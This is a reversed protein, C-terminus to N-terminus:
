EQAEAMLRSPAPLRHRPPVAHRRFPHRAGRRLCAAPGAQRQRGAGDRVARPRGSSARRKRWSPAPTSCWRTTATRPCGPSPTARARTRPYGHAAMVVGLAPRRDWELEVQDLKGATAALLVDVLDSKLADHHAPNRPRGHPLQIGADQTARADIMLGAYLFGTFPIGDKEMGRITPLIIERMARRACRGHGGARAFVRGHRRHQPRRRWRAPAQPGPQHGARLVNKGDCLVIFSAEEGQLFEEIVVRAGGENHTVGM